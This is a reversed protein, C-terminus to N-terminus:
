FELWRQSFHYLYCSLVNKQHNQQNMFHLSGIPDENHQIGLRSGIFSHRILQQFELFDCFDM